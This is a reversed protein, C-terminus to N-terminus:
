SKLKGFAAAMATQPAASPKSKAPRSKSTKQAPKSAMDDATASSNMSLSIRKRQVDVDLVQVKVIDGASVVEHPDSVFKDSLASIHVLGDQHVGIDVFAGFNTVNTVVGELRMGARLDTIEEVGEKFTATKFEPRPDRGPKELESLIDQVTPAGFRDTVFAEVKLGRLLKKDGILQHIERGTHGLINNVVEYSEPHVASADLPNDGNVIRLFGAAQEYVKPGLRPVELLAKRNAFRGNKDRYQVINKALTSNLGAVRTLLPASATNLEVGVTNVCDEVVNDLSHGLKVQNVDHQYQGVGISKPDIKVLEALPDQLRRAISIAGRLSVDIDPFEESALPSASYVSAGAESVVLKQLPVSKCLQILDAALKDTERSATGNGIAILRVTHKEVFHALIALSEKWQHRPAHPYITATDLLKGTMDVVAVKVGTRIGPDLGIVTQHGAPAALLLDKLNLAFVDIAKKESNDRLTKKLELEMHTSLKIKWAWRVSDCLWQDAARNQQQIQFRRAIMSEPITFSKPDVNQDPSEFVMSLQLMGEKQGRFMALMRHSPISKVAELSDFYDSYKAAETEKGKVVKSQLLANDWSFQRLEGVLQADESFHEMLIHRAGELAQDASEIQKEENLYESAVRHPDQEPQQLLLHALPELGAERAIQAKTRRKPMYPRYLDELQTKSDVSNIAHELEKTLKGQESISKLVTQRRDDLERVYGLREQLHRLQIDSLGGTAEKRYRAIFPVTCGEDLLGITTVVANLPLELEQALRQQLTNM